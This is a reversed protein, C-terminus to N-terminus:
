VLYRMMRLQFPTVTDCKFVYMIIGRRNVVFPLRLRVCLNSNEEITNPLLPLITYSAQVSALTASPNNNPKSNPTPSQRLAALLKEATSDRSSRLAPLLVDDSRWLDDADAFVGMVHAAACEESGESDDAEGVSRVRWYHSKGGVPRKATPAARILACLFM